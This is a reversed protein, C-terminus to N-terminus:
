SHNRSDLGNFWETMRRGATTSDLAYLSQIDADAMGLRKCFYLSKGGWSTWKAPAGTPTYFRGELECFVEWWRLLRPLAIRAVNAEDEDSRATVILFRAHALSALCFWFYEFGRVILNRQAGYWAERDDQECAEALTDLVPYLLVCREYLFPGPGSRVIAGELDRIPCMELAGIAGRWDGDKVARRTIPKWRRIVDSHSGVLAIPFDLPSRTLAADYTKPSTAISGDAIGASSEGDEEAFFAALAEHTKQVEAPTASRGELIEGPRLMALDTETTAVWGEGSPAFGNARLWLEARTRSCAVGDLSSLHQRLSDVDIKVWIYRRM